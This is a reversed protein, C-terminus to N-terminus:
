GDEIIIKGKERKIQMINGILNFKEDILYKDSGYFKKKEEIIEGRIYLIHKDKDIQFYLENPLSYKIELESPSAYATNILLAGDIVKYKAARGLDKTVNNIATVWIVVIVVVLLIYFIWLLTGISGRKNM